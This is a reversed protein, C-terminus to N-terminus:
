KDRMVRHQMIIITEEIEGKKKKRKAQKDDPRPFLLERLRGLGPMQAELPNVPSQSLRMLLSRRALELGVGIAVAGVGTAVKRSIQSVSWVAPLNRKVEVLSKSTEGALQAGCELCRKEGIRNEAQCRPCNM